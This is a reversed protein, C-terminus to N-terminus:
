TACTSKDFTKSAITTSTLYSWKVLNEEKLVVGMANFEGFMPLMTLRANDKHM